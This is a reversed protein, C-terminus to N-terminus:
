IIDARPKLLDPVDSNLTLINVNSLYLIKLVEVVKYHGESSLFYKIMIDNLMNFNQQCSDGIEMANSSYFDILPQIIDEDDQFLQFILKTSTLTENLNM